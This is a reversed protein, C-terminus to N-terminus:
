RFPAAPQETSRALLRTHDEYPGRHPNSQSHHHHLPLGLDQVQRREELDADKGLAIESSNVPGHDAFDRGDHEDLIRVM